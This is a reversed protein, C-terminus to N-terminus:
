FQYNFKNLDEKFINEIKKKTRQTYYQRYGINNDNSINMKTLKGEIGQNNLFLQVEHLKEFKFIHDVGEAWEHQNRWTLMPHFKDQLTYDEIFELFSEFTSIKKQIKEYDSKFWKSLKFPRKTFRYISTLRDFPNKVICFSKLKKLKPLKKILDNYRIHESGQKYGTLKTKQSLFFTVSTGANKPIHIFLLSETFYAM